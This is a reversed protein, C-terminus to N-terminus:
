ILLKIPQWATSSMLVHVLLLTILLEFHFIVPECCAQLNVHMCNSICKYMVRVRGFISNFEGFTRNEFTHFSPQMWIFLCCTKLTKPTKHQSLICPSIVPQLFSEFCHRDSLHPFFLCFLLRMFVSIVAM